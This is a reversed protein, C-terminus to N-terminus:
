SVQTSTKCISRPQHTDNPHRCTHVMYKLSQAEIFDRLPPTGVIKETQVHINSHSIAKTKLKKKNKKVSDM